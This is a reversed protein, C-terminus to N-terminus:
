KKRITRRLPKAKGSLKQLADVAKTNSDHKAHSTEKKAEIKTVWAAPVDLYARYTIPLRSLKTQRGSPAEYIKIRAAPYDGALWYEFTGKCTAFPMKIIVEDGVWLTM